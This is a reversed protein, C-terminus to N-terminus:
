CGHRRTRCRDTQFGRVPDHQGGLFLVLRDQVLFVGGKLDLLDGVVNAHHVAAHTWVVAYQDLPSPLRRVLVLEVVSKLDRSSLQYNLDSPFINKPFTTNKQM